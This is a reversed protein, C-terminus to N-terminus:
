PVESVLVEKFQYEAVGDATTSRYEYVVQDFKAEVRGTENTWYGKLQPYIFKPTVVKIELETGCRPGDNFRAKM